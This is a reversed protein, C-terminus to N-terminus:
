IPNTFYEIFFKAWPRNLQQASKWDTKSINTECAPDLVSESSSSNILSLLETKVQDHQDYRQIGYSCELLHKKM